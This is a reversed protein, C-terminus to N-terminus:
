SRYGYGVRWYFYGVVRGNNKLTEMSVDGLRDFYKSLSRSMLRRRNFDIMVVDKGVALSRPFWVAWMLSPRGFLHAGATFEYDDPGGYFSLLSSIFNKDMGVIVPTTGNRTELRDTIADVKEGLERWAGFLRDPSMPGAGPLGLSIYYFSGTHILVLAVITPLWLRNLKAWVNTGTFRPAIMDSALLPIAALWVPATWNLKPSNRFSYLVFVSLPALTFTAAWLYQRKKATPWLWPSSDAGTPLLVRAIGLVGMPTLLLLIAAILVHLSFHNTDSWRGTGQFAFSMWSNQLNWFVVPSFLLLATLAALYPERRTLWQRSDRDIVIFLLIAAGLLAAPYKSLMAIGLCVGLWRWARSEQRILARESFYLTAAWAAFLPADPTMFFGLGFYIPLVALLLATGYAASRGVINVTLRVMFGIAVAWCLFAPLRVSFESHGFIATSLWILWAVVPPHDLYGIDLHQAYNWYYAEEPILNLYGVFVFKLIVTYTVVGLTLAPWYKARAAGYALVFVVVAALGVLDGSLAAVIMATRPRWRWKDMVALFVSSRMLLTLLFIVSLAGFVTRRNVGDREAPRAFVERGLALGAIAALCLAIFQSLEAKVGAATLIACGLLDIVIALLAIGALRLNSEDLVSAALLFANSRLGNNKPPFHSM